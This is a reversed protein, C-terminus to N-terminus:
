MVRLDWWICFCLNQMIHGLASKISIAVPGSSCSFQHTLMQCGLHVPHRKHGEFGDSAFFFCLNRTVDGPTSKISVADLGGSCSFYHMLM